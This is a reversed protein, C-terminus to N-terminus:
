PYVAVVEVEVLLSPRALAAVGLTTRAVKNPNEDNVFFSSYANFWADFDIEGRNSQDPALYVKLTIVDKMELGADRLIGQIRKLSGISQAYTDGYRDPSNEPASEDKVPAVIGSTYFYASEAKVKVGYLIQKSAPNDFREVKQGKVESLLVLTLFAIFLLTLYQKTYITTMM